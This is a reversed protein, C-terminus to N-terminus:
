EVYYVINYGFTNAGNLNLVLANGAGVNWVHGPEIPLIFGTGKEKSLFRWKAVAGFYLIALTENLSENQIQLAVIKIQQVGGVPATILSNNGSSSVTGTAFLLTPQQIAITPVNTVHVNPTNGVNVTGDVTLAGSGDTVKMTGVNVLDYVGRTLETM